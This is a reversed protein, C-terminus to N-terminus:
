PLALHFKSPNRYICNSSGNCDEDWPNPFQFVPDGKVWEDNAWCLQPVYFRTQIGPENHPSGVDLVDNVSVCPLLSVSVLLGGRLLGEWPNAPDYTHGRYIFRPWLDGSPVLQGSKLERQIRSFIPDLEVHDLIFGESTHSM